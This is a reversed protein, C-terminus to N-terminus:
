GIVSKRWGTRMAAGASAMLLALMGGTPEPVQAAPSAIPAAVGGPTPQGFRAGWIARDADNVLFDHNGDADPHNEESGTQNVSKRWAVFDAADVIGNKNYDGTMFNPGGLSVNLKSGYPVGHNSEVLEPQAPPTHPNNDNTPHPDGSQRFDIIPPTAGAIVGASGSGPNDTLNSVHWDAAAKGTSNGWRALLEIEFGLGMYESGPETRSAIFDPTLIPSFPDEPVIAEGVLEPAFNVMGYMRGFEIEDNEFHAVSDVITWKAGWNDVAPQPSDFRNDLGDNGLDMDLNLRPVLGGDITTENRILMATAGGNELSVSRTGANTIGSHFVLSSGPSTNNDGWGETVNPNMNDHEISTAGQAVHADNTLNGDQRLVLFGNSGFSFSGLDFINEILGAGGTHGENDEQEVFILYHNALSMGAPGRLEIYEDRNDQGAGGPDFFIENIFPNAAVTQAIATTFLLVHAVRDL